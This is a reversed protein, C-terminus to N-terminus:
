KTRSECPPLVLSLRTAMMGYPPRAGRDQGGRQEGTQTVAARRDRRSRLDGFGPPGVGPAGARRDDQDLVADARALDLPLPALRARIHSM